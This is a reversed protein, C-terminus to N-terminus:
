SLILTLTMNFLSRSASEGGGHAWCRGGKLAVKACGERQCLKGPPKLRCGVNSKVIKGVEATPGAYVM